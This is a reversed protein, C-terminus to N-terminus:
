NDRICVAIPDVVRLARRFLEKVYQPTIASFRNKEVYLVVVLDRRLGERYARISEGELSYLPWLFESDLAERLPLLM